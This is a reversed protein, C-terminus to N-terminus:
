PNVVLAALTSKTPEDDPDIKTWIKQTPKEQAELQQQTTTAFILEDDWANNLIHKMQRNLKKQQYDNQCVALIAPFDAEKPWEGAEKYNVYNRTKRVSIFFPKTGDWIDLFYRKRDSENSGKQLSV